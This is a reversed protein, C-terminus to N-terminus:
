CISKIAQLIAKGDANKSLYLNFIRMLLGMRIKFSEKSHMSIVMIPVPKRKWKMEEIRISKAFEYGNLGPHSIDTILLNPMEDAHIANIMYTMADEEHNFRLYFSKGLHPKIARYVGEQFLIHDDMHIIKIRDM